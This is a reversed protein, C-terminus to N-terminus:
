ASLVELGRRQAAAILAADCSALPISRRLALELYAADYLTLDEERALRRTATWAQSDTEEDSQIAMRGLRTLSRDVYAEDCRGRRVANRLVNAVELRWLAPVLAGEAVVRLMAAHASATREDDFLWAIAMSADLVVSM